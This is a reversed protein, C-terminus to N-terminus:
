GIREWAYVALYPPMNSHAKGGGATETNQAVLKGVATSQEAYYNGGATLEVSVIPARSFQHAHMPMQSATLTVEKTGGKSGYPFSKESGALLFVDNLLKWTGGFMAAPSVASTSVFIAGVPYIDLANWLRESRRGKFVLDYGPAIEVANEATSAGGFCIGNGKANLHMAFNASPLEISREVTGYADTLVRRLVYRKTVDLAIKRSDTGALWWLSVSTDVVLMVAAVTPLNEDTLARDDAYSAEMRFYAAGEALAYTGDTRWGCWSLFNKEADYSFVTYKVMADKTIRLAYRAADYYTLAAVRNSSPTEKGASAGSLYIANRSWIPTEGNVALMGLEAETGGMPKLYAKATLTNRGGLASFVAETRWKGLTGMGDAAGDENVRWAALETVRPASYPLVEIEVKKVASLGRTDTAKFTVIQKGAANLLGSKLSAGSGSYGGGSISYAMISAGYKGAAGTMAASYGCKGQVYGGPAVEPYTVGDVTLLPAISVAGVEPAAGAPVTVTLSKAVSAFINDESKEWTRLRVMAVGSAANPIADLWAPPFLIEATKVGPQMHAAMEYDGFNLIWQHGYEERGPKVTLTARQGAEVASASLAFTSAIQDLEWIVTLTVQSGSAVRCGRGNGHLSLTTLGSYDYSTSMDWTLQGAKSFGFVGISTGDARVTVADEGDNAITCTIYAKVVRYRLAPWEGSTRQMAFTTYQASAVLPKNGSLTPSAYIVTGQTAM